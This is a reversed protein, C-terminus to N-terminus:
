RNYKQYEAPSNYVYATLISDPRAGADIPDDYGVTRLFQAKVEKTAWYLMKIKDTNVKNGTIFTLKGNDFYYKKPLVKELLTKKIADGDFNPVLNSYGYSISSVAQMWPSSDEPYMAMCDVLINAIKQADTFKGSNGGLWYIASSILYIREEYCLSNYKALRTLEDIFPEVNKYFQSKTPDGSRYGDAYLGYDVGGLFTWLVNVKAPDRFLGQDNFQKLLSTIQPMLDAALIGSGIGRGVVASLVQDQVPIDQSDLGHKPSWAFHPNAMIVRFAPLFRSKAELSNVWSLDSYYFGLYPGARLVEILLPIQRADTETFELGSKALRNFLAKQLDNNLYFDKAGQNYQYIDSIDSYSISMITNVLTISDMAALQAMTYNAKVSEQVRQPASQVPIQHKPLDFLREIGTISSKSVLSSEGEKGLPPIMNKNNQAHVRFSTLIVM